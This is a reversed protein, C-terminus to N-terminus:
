TPLHPLIVGEPGRHARDM